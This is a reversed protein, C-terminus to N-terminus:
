SAHKLSEQQISHAGLLRLLHKGPETIEHPSGKQNRVLGMRSLTGILEIAHADSYDLKQEQVAKLLRIQRTSLNVFFGGAPSIKRRFVGWTGDIEKSM